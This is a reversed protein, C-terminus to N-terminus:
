VDVLVQIDSNFTGIGQADFAAFRESYRNANIRERRGDVGKEAGEFLRDRRQRVADEFLYM